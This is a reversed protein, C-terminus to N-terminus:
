CCVQVDFLRFIHTKKKTYTSQPTQYDTCMESKRDLTYDTKSNM